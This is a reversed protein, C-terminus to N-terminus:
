LKNPKSFTVHCVEISLILNLLWVEVAPSNVDYVVNKKKKFKKALAM